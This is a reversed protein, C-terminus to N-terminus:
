HGMPSDHPPRPAVGELRLRVRLRRLADAPLSDTSLVVTRGRGTQCAFRLILLAPLVLTDTLLHAELRRGERTFLRWQGTSSWNMRVIASGARLRLAYVGHWLSWAVLILLGLRLVLPVNLPFLLVVAALLHLMVLAGILVRSPRPELSLQTASGALSM